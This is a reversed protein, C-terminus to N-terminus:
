AAVDIRGSTRTKSPTVTIRVHQGLVALAHMLRALSIGQLKYNRIASIKSQPMGLIQAAKTQSLGRANLIANLKMALMAKASLEGADAFGLDVLVNETGLSRARKRRM